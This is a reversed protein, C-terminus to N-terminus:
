QFCQDFLNDYVELFLDCIAQCEVINERASTLNSQFKDYQFDAISYQQNFIYRDFYYLANDIDSFANELTDSANNLQEGLEYSYKTWNLNIWSRIDRIKNRQIEYIYDRLEDIYDRADNDDLCYRYLVGNINYDVYDYETICLKIDKMLKYIEYSNKITDYAEPTTPESTIIATKTLANYDVKAGLLQSVARLPVYTTGSSTFPYVTKGNVDTLTSIKGNVSIKIGYYIQMMATNSSATITSALMFIIVVFAIFKYLKNM